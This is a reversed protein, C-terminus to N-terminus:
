PELHSIEEEGFIKKSPEEDHYINVGSKRAPFHATFLEDEDSDSEDGPILSVRSYLENSRAMARRHYVIGGAVAVGMLTFIVSVLLLVTTGTMYQQTDRDDMKSIDVVSAMGTSRVVYAYCFTENLIKRLQSGPSCTSCQSALAGYCELCSRDCAACVRSPVEVLQTLPTRRRRDEAQLPDQKDDLSNSMLLSHDTPSSSYPNVPGRTVEDDQEDEEAKFKDLPYTHVPCVDYCQDEFMYASDNCELCKRDSWKLCAATNSHDRTMGVEGVQFPFPYQQQMNRWQGTSDYEVDNHAMDNGYLNFQNSQSPNAVDEPQAPTETGYFIMDWQTIQANPGNVEKRHDKRAEYDPTAPIEEMEVEVQAPAMVGAAAMLLQQKKLIKQDPLFSSGGAPLIPLISLTAM